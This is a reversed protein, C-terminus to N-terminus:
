MDRTNSSTTGHGMLARKKGGKRGKKKKEEEKKRKKKREGKKSDKKEINKMKIIEVAIDQYGGTKVGAIELRKNIGNLIKTQKNVKKKRESM